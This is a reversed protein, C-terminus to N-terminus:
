ANKLQDLSCLICFGCSCEPGTWQSIMLKFNQLNEAQTIHKPLLNWYKAGQYRFTNLGNKVSTVKPQELSIHSRTNYSHENCDFMDCMFAPNIKFICKFVETIITKIRSLHLTSKKVEVLMDSYTSTYNNLTVRLARKHLKEMKMTNEKSCFHWVCSCYNFNSLIYANYLFLLSEKSLFKSIRGISNIRHATRQCLVSIHKDFKLKSDIYTGLLKVCNEIQICNNKINITVDCNKPDHNLIMAQFKGPNAQMHNNEFWDVAVKASLELNYKLATLSRSTNLLSNDDAYNFLSCYSNLAYFIDNIFINFLLPGMISGQPVGLKLAEWDSRVNGIKVRQKRNCLYSKVLECAELSLGYSRLKSILLRHSLCDFAKSLDMLLMGVFEKRELALNCEDMLKM